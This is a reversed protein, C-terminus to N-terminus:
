FLLDKLEKVNTTSQWKEKLWGQYEQDSIEFKNM